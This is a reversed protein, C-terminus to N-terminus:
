KEKDSESEQTEEKGSDVDTRKTFRGKSRARKQSITQRIQYRVKKVNYNRKRRRERYKDLCQKRENRSYRGIKRKCGKSDNADNNTEEKWSQDGNNQLPNQMYIYGPPPVSDVVYNGHPYYPTAYINPQQRYSYQPPHQFSGRPPPLVMSVYHGEVPNIPRYATYPNPPPRYGMYPPPLGGMLQHPQRYSTQVKFGDEKEEHNAPPRFYRDAM